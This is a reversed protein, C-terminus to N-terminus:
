IQTRVSARIQAPGTIERLVKNNYRGASVMIRFHKWVLGGINLSLMDLSANSNLGISYKNQYTCAIGPEVAWGNQGIYYSSLYPTIGLDDIKFNYGATQNLGIRISRKLFTSSSGGFFSGYNISEVETNTVPQVIHLLSLGIFFNPHSLWAGASLDSVVNIISNFRTEATEYIPGLQPDMQDGYVSEYNNFTYKTIPSLSLGLRLNLDSGVGINGSLTLEVKKFKYSDTGGWAYYTDFGWQQNKGFAGDYSVLNESWTNSITPWLRLHHYNINHKREAGAYAPHIAFNTFLSNGLIYTSAADSDSTDVASGFGTKAACIPHLFLGSILFLSLLHRM